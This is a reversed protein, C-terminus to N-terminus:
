YNKMMTKYSKKLITKLPIQTRNKQIVSELKQFFEEM